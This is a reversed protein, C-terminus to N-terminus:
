VKRSCHLLVCVLAMMPSPALLPHATETLPPPGLMPAALASGMVLAGV